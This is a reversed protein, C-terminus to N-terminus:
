SGSVSLTGDETVSLGAGVKIGGKTTTTASPLTYVTDTDKDYGIEIEAIGTATEGTTVASIFKGVPIGNSSTKSFYGKYDGSYLLYATDGYAITESNKVRVWVKGHSMVGVTADKKVSLSGDMGLENTFGNLAIGEFKDTSASPIKIQDGASTGVVVGMGFKLTGDNEENRRSEVSFDSIDAIGGAVAKPTAYGYSLQAM